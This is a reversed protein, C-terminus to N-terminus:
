KMKEKEMVLGWEARNMLKDERERGENM